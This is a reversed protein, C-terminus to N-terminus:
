LVDIGLTRELTYNPKIAHLLDSSIIGCPAGSDLEMPIVKEEICVDIMYKKCSNVVNIKDTIHITDIYETSQLAAVTTQVESSPEKSRCVKALYGKKGCTNCIIHRFRCQSREHQGGCGHCTGGVYPEKSTRQDITVRGKQYKSGRSSSRHRLKKTPKM